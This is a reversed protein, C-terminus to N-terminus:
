CWFSGTKFELGERYQLNCQAKNKKIRLFSCLSILRWLDGLTITLISFFSFIYTFHKACHRAYLASMLHNVYIVDEYFISASYVWFLVHIHTHAHTCMCMCTSNPPFLDSAHPASRCNDSVPLCTSVPTSTSRFTTLLSPFM